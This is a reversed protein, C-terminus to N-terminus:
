EAKTKVRARVLLLVGLPILFMSIFQSTSLMGVAGRPDSRFFEIIFRWAGYLLAYWGAIEGTKKSKHLRWVLFATLLLLFAAEMLQTPLLPVGAPPYGGAPYVVSIPSDCEMGYCCGAFFCGVRGFAHALALSPLLVDATDPISTKYRRVYLVGGIVGGILAGYFVAGGTLMDLLAAPNQLIYPLEVIVYLLKAGILGGIVAYIAAYYADDRRVARFRWTHLLLLFASLAGAVMLLGYTPLALPGLKIFPHM